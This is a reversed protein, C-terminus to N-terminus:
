AARGGLSHGSPVAGPHALNAAIVCAQCRSRNGNPDSASTQERPHVTLRCRRQVGNARQHSELHGTKGAMRLSSGGTCDCRHHALGYTCHRFDLTMYGIRCPRHDGSGCVRGRFARRCSNRHRAVQLVPFRHIRIGRLIALPRYHDTKWEKTSPGRLPGFPQAQVSGPSIDAKPRHPVNAGPWDSLYDQHGSGALLPCPRGDMGTPAAAMLM